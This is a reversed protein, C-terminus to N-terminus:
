MRGVWAVQLSFMDWAKVVVLCWWSAPCVAQVAFGVLGAQMGRTLCLLVSTYSSKFANRRVVVWVRDGLGWPVVVKRATWGSEGRNM